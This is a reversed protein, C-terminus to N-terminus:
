FPWIRPVLLVALLWFIVNLPGGVRVYDGFRYGGPAFVMTNTQYGVPTSFSTSAAFTIAVLFPRPDVDMASALSLAVPSIIVAAAANSMGETLLATIVYIAALAALPGHGEFLGLAGGAIWAAAGTQQLAIGLPIIGGLLFIVKWDIAQYAEEMTICRGLVMAVAGVLAAVVIPIVDLAALTLVGALIALAVGARDKRLYLETLESIVVVDSSRMLRSVDEKDGQILLTDGAEIRVDALRSRLIRSRRQLALVVSGFRRIFDSRRLTSGVLNSGPPVLAEVLRVEDSSLKQDDMKAESRLELGYENKLKMLAGMDGHLLLVDGERIKTKGPRWTARDGRLIKILELKSKKKAESEDWSQGILPSKEAVTLEALYDALRYKDVQEDSPRRKPLLMRSAFLLYVLGAASVALGLPAFEFLGFPRMGHEVAIANVLINTSTGILTCVGGFQSAFSIPMLVRSAPVKRSRALVVAVPIFVAVVATNVVFASLAAVTVCLVVLLRLEGTGALRDMRSALWQVIGTRVLGASLVFMAAVTATAQSAFGDLVQSPAILRLLVLAALTCMAVLDVGLRGSAFLGMAAALVVLAAIASAEPMPHVEERIGARDRARRKRM